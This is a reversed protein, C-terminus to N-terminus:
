FFSGDPGIVKEVVDFRRTGIRIAKLRALEQAKAKRRENLKLWDASDPDLPKMSNRLVDIESALSVERPAMEELTKRTARAAALATRQAAAIYIVDPTAPAATVSSSSTPLHRASQAM